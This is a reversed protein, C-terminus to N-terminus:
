PREPTRARVSLGLPRDVNRETLVSIVDLAGDPLPSERRRCGHRGGKGEGPQGGARRLSHRSELVSSFSILPQCPSRPVKPAPLPRDPEPQTTSYASMGCVVGKDGNPISRAVRSVQREDVEGMRRLQLRFRISQKRWPTASAARRTGLRRLLGVSFGRPSSLHHSIWAEDVKWHM